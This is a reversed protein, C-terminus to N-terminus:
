DAAVMGAGSHRQATEVVHLLGCANV